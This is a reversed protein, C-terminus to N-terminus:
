RMRIVRYYQGQGPQIAPISDNTSPAFRPSGVDIWNKLDTSLELQYVYGPETNWRVYPGQERLDIQVKLVSAPNTPDTGARFEELNSAGDGDSDANVDPWNAAKGWNITQWDDPLGDGNADEGWTTASVMDSLPSIRGDTLRYGMQFTHVSHPQWEPRSVVAVEGQASIPASEGDVYILYSDVPQGGLEGWSLVLTHQDAASVFPAAAQALAEDPALDFRQAWLDFSTIGGGFSTWAVVFSQDNVATVAPQLQKSRTTTNVLFEDGDFGNPFQALRGYVGEDSTDQGFSTWVILQRGGISGLKPSFQDGKTTNNAIETPSKAVGLFDFARTEVDWSDVNLQLSKASWAARFGGACGVLAPNACIKDNDNLRFESAVATGGAAFIRAYIDVSEGHREEESVWAIVFNGNNLAAVVPSRQNLRTIQNVQFTPGLREGIGSFKQAFVGQM